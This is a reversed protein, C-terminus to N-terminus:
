MRVYDDDDDDDDDDHFYMTQRAQVLLPYSSSHQSARQKNRRIKM